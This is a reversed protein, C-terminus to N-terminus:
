DRRSDRPRLVRKPESAGLGVPIVIARSFAWAHSVCAIMFTWASFAYEAVRPGTVAFTCRLHVGGEGLLRPHGDLRSDMPSM